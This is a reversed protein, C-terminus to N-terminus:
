SRASKAAESEGLHQAHREVFAGNFEYRSDRSMGTWVAYDTPEIAIVRGNPGVERALPFSYGSISCSHGLRRVRPPM